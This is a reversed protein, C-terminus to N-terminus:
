TTQPPTHVARKPRLRYQYKTIPSGGHSTPPDWWVRISQDRGASGVRIPFGPPQVSLNGTIPWKASELTEQSGANDTFSVKLKLFKGVDAHQIPYYDGGWKGIRTETEGDVRYWRLDFNNRVKFRDEFFSGGPMGDPDHMNGRTAHLLDGVATGDGSNFSDHPPNIHPAGTANPPPAVVISMTYASSSDTAGDNVKFGFTTLPNGGENTPATYTLDGADINARTVVQNATVATGSLALTGKAPVSTIRVSALSQWPSNDIFPFDDATFPYREGTQLRKISTDESTPAVNPEDYGTIKVRMARSANRRWDAGAQKLLANDGVSWGVAVSPDEDDSDTGSVYEGANNTNRLVVFYNTSPALTIASTPRVKTIDTAIPQMTEFLNTGPNGDEGESHIEFELSAQTFLANGREIITVRYGTSHSGTTIRQAAMDGTRLDYLTERPQGLNGVLFVDTPTQAHANGLNGLIGLVIAVALLLVTVAPLVLRRPTRSPANHGRSRRTGAPRRCKAALGSLSIRLNPVLRRSHAQATKSPLRLATTVALLAAMLALNRFTALSALSKLANLKTTQM